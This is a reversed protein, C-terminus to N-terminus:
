TIRYLQLDYSAATIPYHCIISIIYYTGEHSNTVAVYYIKIKLHYFCMIFLLNYLVLRAYLIEKMSAWEISAQVCSVNADELVQEYHQLLVGLCDDGFDSVFLCKHGIYKDTNYTGIILLLTIHHIITYSKIKWSLCDM